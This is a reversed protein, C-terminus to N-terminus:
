ISKIKLVIKPEYCLQAPSATTEWIGGARICLYGGENVVNAVMQSQQHLEMSMMIVLTWEESNLETNYVRNKLFFFIHGYSHNKCLTVPLNNLM